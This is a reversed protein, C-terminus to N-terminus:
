LEVPTFPGASTGGDIMMVAGNIYRGADSTVYEVYNAVDSPDAIRGLPVTASLDDVTIQYLDLLRDVMPTQVYGPCVVNFRAGAPAYELSLAKVIGVVAHKSACYGAWGAAGTVGADSAIATFSGGTEVLHPISERALVYVGRTNVTMMRDFHEVPLDTIVGPMGIGAAAVVVNPRGLESTVRAFLESVANEDSVDVGAHIVRAGDEAMRAAVRALGDTDIDALAVADGRRGLAAAIGAGIGSAAGTVLSVNGVIEEEKDIIRGQRREFPAGLKKPSSM